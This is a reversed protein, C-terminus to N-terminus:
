IDLLVLSSGVKYNIMHGFSWLSLQCDSELTWTSLVLNSTLYQVFTLNYTKVNLHSIHLFKKKLVTYLNEVKLNGESVWDCRGPVSIM